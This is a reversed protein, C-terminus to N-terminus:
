NKITSPKWSHPVRQYAVLATAHLTGKGEPTDESFDANDAAYFVFHKKSLSPPVYVTYEASHSHVAEALQTEIRLIRNYDVSM